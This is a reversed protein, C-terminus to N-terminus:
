AEKYDADGFNIIEKLANELVANEDELRAIEAIYFEKYDLRM